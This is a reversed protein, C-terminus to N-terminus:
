GSHSSSAVKTKNIIIRLHTKNNKAIVSDILEEYVNETLLMIIKNLGKFKVLILKDSIKIYNDASTNISKKPLNLM